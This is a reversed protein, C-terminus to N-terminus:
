PVSATVSCTGIHPRQRFGRDKPLEEIVFRDPPGLRLVFEDEQVDAKQSTMTHKDAGADDLFQSSVM